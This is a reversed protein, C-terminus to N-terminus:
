AAAGGKHTGRRFTAIRPKDADVFFQDWSTIPQGNLRVLVDGQQINANNQVAQGSPIMEQVKFDEDLRLGFSGPLFTVDYDVQGFKAAKLVHMEGETRPAARTSQTPSPNVHPKNVVAPQKSEDTSSQAQTLEDVNKCVIVCSSAGSGMTSEITYGRGTYSAVQNSVTMGQGHKYSMPGLLNSGLFDRIPKPLKPNIDSNPIAFRNEPLGAAQLSSGSHRDTKAAQKVAQTTQEVPKKEVTCVSTSSGVNPKTQKIKNSTENPPGRDCSSVTTHQSPQGPQTTTNRRRKSKSPGIRTVVVFAGDAYGDGAEIKFDSGSLQELERSRKFGKGHKYRMPGQNGGDLFNRIEEPLASLDPKPSTSRTSRKRSRDPAIVENMRKKAIQSISSVWNNVKYEKSTLSSSVSTLIDCLINIEKKPGNWAWQSIRAM